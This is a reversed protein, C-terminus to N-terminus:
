EKEKSVPLSIIGTAQALDALQLRYSRYVSRRIANPRVLGTIGAHGSAGPRTDPSGDANTLVEWVVDLSPVEPVDPEPRLARIADVSLRLALTYRPAVFMAAQEPMTLREVFVSVSQLPSAEDQSSPAFAFAFSEGWGDLPPAIAMRLVTEGDPLPEGTTM